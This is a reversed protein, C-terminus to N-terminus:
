QAGAAHTLMAVNAGTQNMVTITVHMQSAIDRVFKQTEPPAYDLWRQGHAAIDKDVAAPGWNWAALAEAVNGHYQQIYNAMVVGFAPAEQEISSPNTVGTLAQMERSM